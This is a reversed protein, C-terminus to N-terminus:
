KNREMGCFGYEKIEVKTKSRARRMKIKFLKTIQNTLNIKHFERWKIEEPRKLLAILISKLTHKVADTM